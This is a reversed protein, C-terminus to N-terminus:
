RRGINLLLTFLSLQTWPPPHGHKEEESGWRSESGCRPWWTPARTAPCHHCVADAAPHPSAGGRAVVRGGQEEAGKRGSVEASAHPSIADDRSFVPHGNAVPWGGRGPAASDAGLLRRRVRLCLASSRKRRFKSRRSERQARDRGEGGRSWTTSEGTVLRLFLDALFSCPSFGSQPFQKRSVLDGCASAQGGGADERNIHTRTHSTPPFQMCAGKRTDGREHQPGRTPDGFICPRPSSILTPHASLNNFNFQPSFLLSRQLLEGRTGRKAKKEKKKKRKKEMLSDSLDWRGKRPPDHKTVPLMQPLTRNM